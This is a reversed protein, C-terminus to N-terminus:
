NALECRGTHNAHAQECHNCVAKKCRWCPRACTADPGGCLAAGCQACRVLMADRPLERACACCRVPGFRSRPM